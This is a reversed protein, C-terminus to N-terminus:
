EYFGVKVNGDLDVINGAEYQDYIFSMLENKLRWFESALEEVQTLTFKDEQINLGESRLNIKQFRVESPNGEIPIHYGHVLRNRKGVLNSIESILSDVKEKTKATPDVLDSLAKVANLRNQISIPATLMAIKRWDGEALALLSYFITTELESFATVVRGIAEYYKPNLDLYQQQEKNEM